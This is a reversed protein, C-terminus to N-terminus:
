NYGCCQLCVCLGKEEESWDAVFSMRGNGCFEEM